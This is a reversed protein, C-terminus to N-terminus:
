HFKGRLLQGLMRRHENPYNRSKIMSVALELSKAKIIVRLLPQETTTM